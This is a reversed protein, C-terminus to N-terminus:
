PNLIVFYDVIHADAVSTSIFTLQGAVSKDVSIVLNSSTSITVISTSNCNTVIVTASGSVLTVTGFDWFNTRMFDTLNTMTDYTVDNTLQNDELSQIREDQAQVQDYLESM